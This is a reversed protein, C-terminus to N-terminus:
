IQNFKKRLREKRIKEKDHSWYKKELWWSNAENNGFVKGEFFGIAYFVFGALFFTLLCLVIVKGVSVPRKLVRAIYKMESDERKQFQVIIENKIELM